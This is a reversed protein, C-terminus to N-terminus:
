GTMRFLSSPGVTIKTRIPGGPPQTISYLHWTKTDNPINVALTVFFTAGPQAVLGGIPSRIVESIPHERQAQASAAGVLALVGALLNRMARPSRSRARTM